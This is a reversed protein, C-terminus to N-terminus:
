VYADMLRVIDEQQYFQEQYVMTSNISRHGLARKVLHLDKSKKYLNYAFTHRLAHLKKNCLRFGHWHHLLTRHIIPFIREKPPGTAISELRRYIDVPLPLERDKGGKVTAICISQTEPQLDMPRLALLESSRMGTKLLLEFMVANMYRQPAADKTQQTLNQKIKEELEVVEIPTLYKLKSISHQKRAM